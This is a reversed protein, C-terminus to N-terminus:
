SIYELIHLHCKANCVAGQYVRIGCPVFAGRCGLEEREPLVGGIIMNFQAVASRGNDGSSYAVLEDHFGKGGVPKRWCLQAHQVEATEVKLNIEERVKSGPVALAQVCLQPRFSLGKSDV